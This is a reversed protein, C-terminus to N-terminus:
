PPRVVAIEAITVFFPDAVGSRYANLAGPSSDIRLWAQAYDHEYDQNWYAMAKVQPYRGSRIAAFADRIWAAKDGGPYSDTVGWELVAVPKSPSIATLEAYGADLVETFSKWPYKQTQTPHVSIGLWDVYEDGPYYNRMANWAVDPEAEVDVHFFWTANWVEERRFIDVVHRYAQRYLLTGKEEGNYKGNWPYWDRNVEACFQLMLPFGVDRADRAWQTLERDFRGDAIAQLAYLPEPTYEEWHSRPMLRIFPVAGAEHVARADDAPFAFSDGWSNSFYAWAIGKEALGEFAEIKAATVGDFGSWDPMAAHYVGREPPVVKLYTPIRPEDRAAMPVFARYPRDVTDARAAGDLQAVAAIFACALAIAIPRGVAIWPRPGM